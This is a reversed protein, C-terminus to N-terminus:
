DSSWAGRERKPSAFDVDVDPATTKRLLAVFLTM